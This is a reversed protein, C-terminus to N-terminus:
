YKTRCQMENMSPNRTHTIKGKSPVRSLYTPIKVKKKQPVAEHDTLSQEETIISLPWLEEWVRSAIM